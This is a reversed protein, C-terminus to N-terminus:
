KTSGLVPASKRSVRLRKEGVEILELGAWALLTDMALRAEDKTLPTQSQFTIVDAAMTNAQEANELERGVLEAYFSVVQAAECNRFDMCGTPLLMENEKNAASSTQNPSSPAVSAAQAHPAVQVFKTGDNVLALGSQKFANELAEVAETRTRASSRLTLTMSDLRPHLISRGKLEGYVRLVSALRARELSIGFPPTNSLSLVLRHMGPNAMVEVIGEAPSIRVVEVKDDREGERLGSSISQLRSFNLLCAKFGPLNIIGELVPEGAKGPFAPSPTSEGAHGVFQCLILCAALCM